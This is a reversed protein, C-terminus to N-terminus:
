LEDHLQDLLSRMTNLDSREIGARVIVPNQLTENKITDNIIDLSLCTAMKLLEREQNNLKIITEPRDIIM